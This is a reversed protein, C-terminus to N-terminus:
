VNLPGLRQLIVLILLVCILILSLPILSSLLVALSNQLSNVAFAFLLKIAILILHNVSDFLKIFLILNLACWAIRVTITRVNGIHHLSNSDARGFHHFYASTSAGTRCVM